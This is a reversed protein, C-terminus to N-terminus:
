DRQRTDYPSQCAAPRHIRPSVVTTAADRALTSVSRVTQRRGVHQSQGPRYTQDALEQHLRWLESELDFHFTAVSPRFRKGRQATLAARLLSRFSIM